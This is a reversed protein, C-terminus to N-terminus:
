GKRPRGRRPREASVGLEALWSTRQDPSMIEWAAIIAVMAGDERDLADTVTAAARGTMAGITAQSLGAARARDRITM